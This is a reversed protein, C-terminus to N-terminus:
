IEYRVGDAHNVPRRDSNGSNRRRDALSLEMIYNESQQDLGLRENEVKVEDLPRKFWKKAKQGGLSTM